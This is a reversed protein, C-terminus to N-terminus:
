ASRGIGAKTLVAPSVGVQRWAQYTIGNRQGYGKAVKVFSEELGSLDVPQGLNALESELRQRASIMKVADLPAASPLKDAIDALQRNISEPTRKRGRKPKNATLADLYERVARSEVRGAQMKAKHDETVSKPGRKAM